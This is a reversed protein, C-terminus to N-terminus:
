GHCRMGRGGAAPVGPLGSWGRECEWAGVPPADALSVVACISGGGLSALSQARV